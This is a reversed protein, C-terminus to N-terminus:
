KNRFYTGSKGRIGKYKENIPNYAVWADEDYFNSIANLHFPLTDSCVPKFHHVDVGVNLMNLQYKFISHVHGVLNFVDSVGETPYHTIYCMLNGFQHYYGGGDPYIKRFYPELQEDTFVRDHNGRILTKHGNFKAVLPLFEPAKQYCVDGLVIVEDDPAVMANHNQILTEIHQNRCTFPRGMLEFRDEGLHWDATFWTKM